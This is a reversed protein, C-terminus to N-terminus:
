QESPAAPDSFRRLWRAALFLAIALISAAAITRFPATQAPGTFRRAPLPTTRRLVTVGGESSVQHFGLVQWNPPPAGYAIKSGILEPSPTTVIWNAGLRDALDANGAGVFFRHGDELLRTARNVFPTPEILAQRSDFPNEMDTFFEFIGHGGSNAIVVNGPDGDRALQNLVRAGAAPLPLQVRYAEVVTGIGWVFAACSRASPWCADPSLLARSPSGAAAPKPSAKSRSQLERDGCSAARIRAFRGLGTHRPVYTDYSIAFYSVGATLLVAYTAIAVCASRLRRPGVVAALGIGVLGAATGLKGLPTDLPVAPWPTTISDSTEGDLSPKRIPGFRGGDRQIYRLTPDSGDAARQPNAADQAVVVRGQVAWGIAGSVGFAVILAVGLAAFTRRSRFAPTCVIEALLVSVLLLGTVTAAIAHVALNVGVIAGVFVFMTPERRRLARVALRAAILGLVIGVSEPKYANFKDTYWETPIALAAGLLSSWAPLWLRLLGYLMVIGLVAVPLPFAAIAHVPDAWGSLSRYAESQLNFALYDPLWRIHTGYESVWAPVAGVRGITRGLDWYYWQFLSAPPGGTRLASWVWPLSLIALGAAAPRRLLPLIWVFVRPAGVISAIAAPIGIALPNFWGLGVLVSGYAAAALTTTGVGLALEDIGGRQRRGLLSRIGFGPLVLLVGALVAASLITARDMLSM